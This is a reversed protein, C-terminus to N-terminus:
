VSIRAPDDPPRHVGVHSRLEHGTSQLHRYPPVSRDGAEDHMMGVAPNLVRRDRKALAKFLDADNKRLVPVAKSLAMASLKM